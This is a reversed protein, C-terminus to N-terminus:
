KVWPLGFRELLITIARVCRCLRFKNSAPNCFHWCIFYVLIVPVLYFGKELGIGKGGSRKQLIPPFWLDHGVFSHIYMAFYLIFSIQKSFFHFPGESKWTTLLGRPKSWSICILTVLTRSVVDNNIGIAYKNLFSIDVYGSMDGSDM